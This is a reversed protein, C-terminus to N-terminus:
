FCAKPAREKSRSFAKQLRGYKILIEQKYKFKIIENFFM